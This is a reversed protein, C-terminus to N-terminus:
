HAMVANAKLRFEAIFRSARPPSHTLLRIFATRKPIMERGPRTTRWARVSTMLRLRPWGEYGTSAAARRLM